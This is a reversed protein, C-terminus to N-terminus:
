PLLIVFEFLLEHYSFQGSSIKPINQYADIIYVSTTWDVVLLETRTIM